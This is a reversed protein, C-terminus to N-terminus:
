ISTGQSFFDCRIICQRNICKMKEAPRRGHSSTQKSHIPVEEVLKALIIFSHVDPTTLIQLDGEPYTLLGLVLISHVFALYIHIVPLRGGM